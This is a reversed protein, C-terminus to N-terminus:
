VVLIEGIPKKILKRGFQIIAYVEKPTAVYSVVTGVLHEVVVSTGNNTPVYWQVKM